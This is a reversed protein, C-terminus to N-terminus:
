STAELWRQGQGQDELKQCGAEGCGEDSWGDMQPQGEWEGFIYIQFVILEQSYVM